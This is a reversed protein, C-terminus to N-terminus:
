KALRRKAKKVSAKSPECEAEPEDDPEDESEDDADAMAAALVVPPTSSRNSSLGAKPTAFWPFLNTRFTANMARGVLTSAPQPKVLAPPAVYTAGADLDAFGGDAPGSLVPVMGPGFEGGLSPMGYAKADAFSPDVALTDAPLGAPSPATYADDGVPLTDIDRM